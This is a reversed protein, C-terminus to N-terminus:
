QGLITFAWNWYDDCYGTEFSRHNRVVVNQGGVTWPLSQGMPVMLSAGGAAAFEFVYSDATTGCTPADPKPCGLPKPTVAVDASGIKFTPKALGDSAVVYTKAVVSIPNAQGNLEPLNTVALFYTCAWPRAIRYDVAVYAGAPIAFPTSTSVNFVVDQPSCGDGVCTDITLVVAGGADPGISRVVGSVLGQTTPPYGGDTAVNWCNRVGDPLVVSFYLGGNTRACSLPPADGDWAGDSDQVSADSDSVAGDGDHLGADGDHHDADGDSGGDSDIVDSSDRADAVVDSGDHADADLGGSDADNSAVDHSDGDTLTVDRADVPAAADPSTDDSPSCAASLLVVVTCLIARRFM